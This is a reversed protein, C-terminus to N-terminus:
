GITKREFPLVKGSEIVGGASLLNDVARTVSDRVPDIDLRAYIATAQVSKHNLSKGIIALSAGHRAQWSGLTRRLDHIRLGTLAFSAPELGHRDLMAAYHKVAQRPQSLSFGVAHEVDGESWGEADALARVIGLAQARALIREWGKRPEAYHGTKGEGPFVWPGSAKGQRDTLVSVLQSALTVLQPEGNKTDPIRWVGEALDLQDWRMALVNSRRAGTLLCALFFDRVTDSPEAALAQFFRPLEHHQLFRDRQKVKNKKIGAAPNAGDWLGANIAWNFMVSCLALVKNAHAPAGRSVSTHLQAFDKRALSSLKRKGLTPALHRDYNRQDERWTKKKPKSHLRMFEVFLGGFTLEGRLQRRVEAPNHGGAIASSVELAQRRAQEITMAPYRGLTVREPRSDARVWRQCTFTKTGKPTVRLELGPTKADTYTARKGEAPLPLADLTKKTFTIRPM